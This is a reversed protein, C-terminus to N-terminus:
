EVCQWHDRGMQGTDGTARTQTQVWVMVDDCWWIDGDCCILDSWKGVKRTTSVSGHCEHTLLDTLGTLLLLYIDSSQILSTQRMEEVMSLVLFHFISLFKTLRCDVYVVFRTVCWSCAPQLQHGVSVVDETVIDLKAQAIGDWWMVASGWM